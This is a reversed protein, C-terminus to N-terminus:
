PRAASRVCSAVYAVREASLGSSSPLYLGNHGLAESVRRRQGRFLRAYAPQLNLPTFFSRTEVGRAALRARLADRTLGFAPGVLVGFVWDSSRTGPVVPPLTLGPVGALAARYLRAVRRRGELLADFRELQALGVAAQLSTMRYNFGVVRHWFHRDASFGHDRLTRVRSAFARDSTAVVGGEGTTVVKNAYLSFAAAKGWAGAPRGDWEGGLGEAADELLLLGRERALRALATMPAPVGYTHVALLAKTRRTVRRRADDPDVNWTVPDVDALVPRAGVYLAANAVAAMTFAPVIIEDGPGLGSAALVLHLAATGSSCAVAEAVGLRRAFASEFEGVMPGISSIWGSRVCRTVYRLENGRLVPECVPIPLRLRRAAGRPRRLRPEPAPPPPPGGRRYSAADRTEPKM